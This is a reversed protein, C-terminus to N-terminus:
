TENDRKLKMAAEMTLSGKPIIATFTTLQHESTATITGRMLKMNSLAISLGLGSGDTNRSPDNKYFRKFLNELEDAPITKGHNTVSICAEHEDESIVISIPKEGHKLANIVLNAVVIDLRRRDVIALAHGSVEIDNEWHRLELMNTIVDRLQCKELDLSATKADHRSIELLDETLSHLRRIEENIITAAEAAGEPMKDVEEALIDTLALMSAIPTRLEHAVDAVFRRSDSDRTKLDALTKQLHRSNNNFKTVLDAVSLDKYSPTKSDSNHPSLDLEKLPRLLKQAFLYGILSAIVISILATILLLKLLNRIDSDAHDLPMYGLLVLASDETGHASVKLVKSGAIVTDESGNKRIEFYKDSGNIVQQVFDHPINPSHPIEAGTVGGIESFPQSYQQQTKTDLLVAVAGLQSLESNIEEISHILNAESPDNLPTVLAAQSHVFLVEMMSNANSNLYHKKQIAYYSSAAGVTVLVAIFIIIITVNSAIKSTNTLSNIKEKLRLAM